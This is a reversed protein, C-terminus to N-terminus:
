CHVEVKALYIEKGTEYRTKYELKKIGEIKEEIAKYRKKVTDSM